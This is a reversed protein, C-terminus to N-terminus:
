RGPDLLDRLRAFLERASKPPRGSSAELAANRVLRRLMQADAGPHEDLFATMAADGEDDNDGLLRDRWREIGHFRAIEKRSPQLIRELETRVAEADVNALCAAVYRLQRQLAGRQLKRAERIPELVDDPLGLECLQRDPLGVLERGLEQLAHRDRKRQSKSADSPNAV